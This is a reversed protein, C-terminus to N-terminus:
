KVNARTTPGTGHLQATGVTQSKGSQRRYPQNTIATHGVRKSARLWETAARDLTVARRDFPGSGKLVTGKPVKGCNPPPLYSAESAERMLALANKKTARKRNSDRYSDRM